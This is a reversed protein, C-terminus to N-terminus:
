GGSSSRPRSVYSPLQDTRLEWAPTRFLTLLWSLYLTILFVKLEATRCNLQCRVFDCGVYTLLYATRGYTRRNTSCFPTDTVLQSVPM